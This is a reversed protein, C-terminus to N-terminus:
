NVMFLALIGLGFGFLFVFTTIRFFSNKHTVIAENQENAYNADEILQALLLTDNFIFYERHQKLDVITGAFQQSRTLYLVLFVTSVMIAVATVIPWQWTGSGDLLQTGFLAVIVLAAAMLNNAKQDIANDAAQIVSTQALVASLIGTLGDANDVGDVAEIENKSTNAM